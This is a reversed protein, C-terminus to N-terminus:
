KMSFLALFVRRRSVRRRCLTFKHKLTSFFAKSLSLFHMISKKKDDICVRSFDPVVTAFVVLAKNTNTHLSLPSRMNHIHIGSAESNSRFCSFSSKNESRKRVHVCGFSSSLCVCSYPSKVNPFTSTENKATNM